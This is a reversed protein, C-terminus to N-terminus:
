PLEPLDIGNFPSSPETPAYEKDEGLIESLPVTKDAASALQGSIQYGAVIVTRGAERLQRVLQSFGHDNAVLLVTQCISNEVLREQVERKLAEDAIEKSWFM